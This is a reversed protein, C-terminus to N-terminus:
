WWIGEMDTGSNAVIKWGKKLCHSIEIILHMIRGHPYLRYWEVLDFLFLQFVISYVHPTTRWLPIKWPGSVCVLSRQWLRGLIPCHSCILISSRFSKWCCICVGILCHLSSHWWWTRTLLTSYFNSFLYPCVLFQLFKSYNGYIKITCYHMWCICISHCATYVRILSTRWFCRDYSYFRIKKTSFFFVFVLFNM